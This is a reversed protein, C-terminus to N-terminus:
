VKSDFPFPFKSAMDRLFIRSLNVFINVTKTVTVSLQRIQLEEDDCLGLLSQVLSIKADGM